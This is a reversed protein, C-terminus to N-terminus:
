NRHKSLPLLTAALRTPCKSTDIVVFMSDMIAHKIGIGAFLSVRYSIFSWRLLKYHRLLALVTQIYIDNIRM